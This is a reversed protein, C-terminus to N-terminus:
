DSIKVLKLEKHLKGQIVRVFYTGANYRDGFRTNSNATVNRTEIVRGYMDTVQM